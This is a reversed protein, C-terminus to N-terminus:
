VKEKTVKRTKSKDGCKRRKTKKKVGGRQKRQAIRRKKGKKRCEEM